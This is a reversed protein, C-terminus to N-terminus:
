GFIAGTSVVASASKGMHAIYSDRRLGTHEADRNAELGQRLEAKM